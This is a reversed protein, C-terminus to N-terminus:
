FYDNVTLRQNRSKQIKSEQKLTGVISIYRNQKKTQQHTQKKKKNTQKINYLLLIDSAQETGQTACLSLM